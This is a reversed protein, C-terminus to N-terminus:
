SKLCSLNFLSFSENSDVSRNLHVTWSTHLDVDEIELFRLFRHM